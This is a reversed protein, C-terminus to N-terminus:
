KLNNISIYIIQYLIATWLGSLKTSHNKNLQKVLGICEPVGKRTTPPTKNNIAEIKILPKLYM